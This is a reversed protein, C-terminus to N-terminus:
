ERLLTGTHKSPCGPLCGCKKGRLWSFVFFFVEEFRRRADKTDEHRRPLLHSLRGVLGSFASHRSREFVIIFIPRTERPQGLFRTSESTIRPRARSAPWPSVGSGDAASTMTTLVQANMSEALRSDTSAIRSIACCLFSPVHRRSITVPQRASRYRASSCCSI